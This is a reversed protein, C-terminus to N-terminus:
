GKEGHKKKKKKKENEKKGHYRLKEFEKKYFTFYLEM